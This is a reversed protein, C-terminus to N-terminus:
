KAPMVSDLQMTDEPLENIGKVESITTDVAVEVSETATAKKEKGHELLISVCAYGLACAILFLGIKKFM